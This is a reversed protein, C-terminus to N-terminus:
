SATAGSLVGSAAGPPRAAESTGLRVADRRKCVSLTLVEHMAALAAGSLRPAGSHTKCTFTQDTLGVVLKAAARKWRGSREADRVIQTPLSPEAVACAPLPAASADTPGDPREPSWSGGERGFVV